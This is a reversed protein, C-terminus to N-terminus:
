TKSSKSIKTSVELSSFTNESCAHPTTKAHKLLIELPILSRGSIKKHVTSHSMPIFADTKLNKKISASAELSYSIGKIALSLIDM